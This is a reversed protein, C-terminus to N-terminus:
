SEKNAKKRRVYNLYFGGILLGFGVAILNFLNTATNPLVTGSEVSTTMNFNVECDGDTIVVEGLKNNDQDTVVYTGAPLKGHDFKIQGAKDTKGTVVVEGDKSTFTYIKDAGVTKGDETITITVEECTPAETIETNLD